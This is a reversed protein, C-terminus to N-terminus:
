RFKWIQNLFRLHFIRRSFWVQTPCMTL